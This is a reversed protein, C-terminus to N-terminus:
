EWFAFPARHIHANRKSIIVNSIASRRRDSPNEGRSVDSRGADDIPRPRAERRGAVSGRTPTSSSCWDLPPSSGGRVGPRVRRKEPQASAVYEAAARTNSIVDNRADNLALYRLVTHGDRCRTVAAHAVAVANAPTLFERSATM